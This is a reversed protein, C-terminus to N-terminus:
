EQNLNAIFELCNMCTVAPAFPTHNPMATDSYCGLRLEGPLTKTNDGGLGIRLKTSLVKGPGAPHAFHVVEVYSIDCKSKDECTSIDETRSLKDCSFCRYPM